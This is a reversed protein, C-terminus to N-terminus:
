PTVQGQDSHTVERHGEVEDVLQGLLREYNRVWVLVHRDHEVEGTRTNRGSPYWGDALRKSIPNALLARAEATPSM